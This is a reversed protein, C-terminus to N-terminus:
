TFSIWSYREEVRMYPSAGASQGEGTRFRGADEVPVITVKGDGVRGTRAADVIACSTPM